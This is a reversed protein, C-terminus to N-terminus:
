DFTINNTDKNIYNYIYYNNRFVNIDKHNFAISNKKIYNNTNIRQNPINSIASPSNYSLNIFNYNKSNILDTRNKNRIANGDQIFKLVKNNKIRNKILNNYIEQNDKNNKAKQEKTLYSIDAITNSYTNNNSFSYKNPISKKKYININQRSYENTQKGKPISIKKNNYNLILENRNKHQIKKNMSKKKDVLNDLHNSLLTLNNQQVINFYSLSTMNENQEIREKNLQPSNNNCQMSYNSNINRKRIIKKEKSKHVKCSIPRNNKESSIIVSKKNNHNITYLNIKIKPIKLSIIKDLNTNNDSFNNFINNKINNDLTLEEKKSIDLKPHESFELDKLHIENQKKNRRKIIIHRNIKNNGINITNM